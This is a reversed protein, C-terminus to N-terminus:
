VALLKKIKVIFVFAFLIIVSLLIIFAHWGLHEYFVGPTFSGLTGGAYYFSIYLGNSIARKEHSLKSILGSTVSHIIFFGACVIFMGMFMVLYSDIHFIQIGVCYIIVGVIIARVEGKFFRIISFISVSIIFGIIYGAYMLGVKGYGIDHSLTTLRFPIFNLVAQFVFFIFFMMLYINLFVREKVLAVIESFKPKVFTTKEESLYNLYFFMVILVVGLVVFFVRWGFLDSFVGSLLRGVFGGFITAGIYYGIAQQVHERPTVISIYSM